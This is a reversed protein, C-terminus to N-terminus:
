ADDAAKGATKRVALRVPGDARESRSKLRGSMRFWVTVRDGYAAEVLAAREVTIDADPDAIVDGAKVERWTTETVKRPWEGREAQGIRLALLARLREADREASRVAEEAIRVDIRLAEPSANRELRRWTKEAWRSM